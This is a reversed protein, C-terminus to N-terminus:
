EYPWFDDRIRSIHERGKRLFGPVKKRKLLMEISIYHVYWVSM